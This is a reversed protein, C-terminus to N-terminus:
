NWNPRFWNTSWDDWFGYVYLSLMLANVLFGLSTVLSLRENRRNAALAAAVGFAFGAACVALAKAPTPSPRVPSVSGAIVLANLTLTAVGTALSTPGWRPRAAFPVPKDGADRADIVIAPRTRPGVWVGAGLCSAGLLTLVAVAAGGVAGALRDRKMQRDHWEYWPLTDPPEPIPDAQEEEPLRPSRYREGYKAEWARVEPLDPPPWRRANWPHYLQVAASNGVAMLLVGLVGWACFAFWRQGRSTNRVLGFRRRPRRADPLDDVPPAGEPWRRHASRGWDWAILGLGLLLGCAEGMLGAFLLSSTYGDRDLAVQISGGLVVAAIALATLGARRLRGSSNM